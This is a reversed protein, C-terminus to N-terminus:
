PWPRRRRERFGELNEDVRNALDPQDSAFLPLTPEAIRQGSTVADIGERILEAQSRGSAKAVLGLAQKQSSTLRVTTKKM